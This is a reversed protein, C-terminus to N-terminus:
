ASLLSRQYIGRSIGKLSSRSLLTYLLHLWVTRPPAWHCPLLCHACVSVCSTGNEKQVDALAAHLEEKFVTAEKAIKEGKDLLNWTAEEVSALLVRARKSRGKKKSSPNQPCNVLTTVQIILPELLKEVTFTQIQLDQPDVKLKISPAKTSMEGKSDLIMQSGLSTVKKKADFLNPKFLLKAKSIPLPPMEM